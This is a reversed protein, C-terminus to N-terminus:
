APAPAYFVLGDPMLANAGVAATRVPEPASWDGGALYVALAAVEAPTAREGTARAAHEVTVGLAAIASRLSHKGDAFHRVLPPPPSGKGLTAAMEAVTAYNATDRDIAGSVDYQHVAWTTWPPPVAPQGAPHDPDAIWLPYGGMGDCYGAGAFDIFTYVLPVRDFRRQLIRLVERAWPAALDPPMGDSDEWDLSIGDADQLGGAQDLAQGLLGATETASTAPHAFAYAIRGKGSARLWAWDAAADPSIYREGTPLLESFKVAAWSIDGAAAKWGGPPGQFASVDVGALM